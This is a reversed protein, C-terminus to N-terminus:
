LKFKNGFPFKNVKFNDELICLKSIKPTGSTGKEYKAHKFQNSIQFFKLWNNIPQGVAITKAWRQKTKAQVKFQGTARASVGVV